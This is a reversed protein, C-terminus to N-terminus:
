DLTDRTLIEVREPVWIMKQFSGALSLLWRYRRLTIRYATNGDLSHFTYIATTKHSRQLESQLSVFEFDSLEPSVRRLSAAAVLQSDRCWPDHGANVWRQLNEVHARDIAFNHVVRRETTQGAALNMSAAGLTWLILSFAIRLIVPLITRISAAPKRNLSNM